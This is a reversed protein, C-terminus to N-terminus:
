KLTADYLGIAGKGTHFFEIKIIDYNSIELNEVIIPVDGAELIESRYLEKGDGYIVMYVSASMSRSSFPIALIANFYTYKKNLYYERYMTDEFYLGAYLCRTHNEGINDKLEDGSVDDRFYSNRLPASCENLYDVDQLNIEKTNKIKEIRDEINIEPKLYKELEQKLVDNNKTIEELEKSKEEIQAKNENLEVSLQINESELDNLKSMVKEYEETTVLTENYYIATNSIGNNNGLKWALIVCFIAVISEVILGIIWKTTDM